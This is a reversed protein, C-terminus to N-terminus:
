NEDIVNIIDANDLSERSTKMKKNAPTKNKSMFPTEKIRIPTKIDDIVIELQKLPSQTNSDRNYSKIPDYIEITDTVRKHDKGYSGASGSRQSPSSWSKM